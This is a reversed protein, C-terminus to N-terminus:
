FINFFIKIEKIEIDYLSSLIYYLSCSCIFNFYEETNYKSILIRKPLYLKMNFGQLLSSYSLISNIFKNNNQENKNNNTLEDQVKTFFEEALAKNKKYINPIIDYDRQNIVKYFYLNDKLNPLNIQFSRYGLSKFITDINIDNIFLRFPCSYNIM